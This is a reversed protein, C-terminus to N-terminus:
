WPGNSRSLYPIFEASLKINRFNEVHNVGMRCTPIPSGNLKRLKNGSM